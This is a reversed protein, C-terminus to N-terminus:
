SCLQRQYFRREFEAPSVYGLTSHRRQNNYFVETYEFIHNKAQERNEYREFYVCETKLTHFFSEMAANDYCNGIGSMSCVIGHSKLLRQFAHSTYQCGQDSHHQLGAEPQRRHLAQLLADIVLQTHLSRGMSLGVIKRSFLDLVVAIYLWGELTRIYSMDAVWKENPTKASFEQNLLNPAAAAKSNRRTTTKFLRQMKAVIGAKKMLRAVRPRSYQYGQEVLEAHIRPSGYTERSDKFIVWIRQTLLENELERAGRIGRCYRYYGSRSVQLVRAMEEVGWCHSHMKM